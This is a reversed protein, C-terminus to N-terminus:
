RCRLAERAVDKCKQDCGDWGGGCEGDELRDLAARYRDREATLADIEALLDRRVMAVRHPPLGLAFDGDTMARLEAMREPTPRTM